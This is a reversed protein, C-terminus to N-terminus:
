FKFVSFGSGVFSTINCGHDRSIELAFFFYRTSLFYAKVPIKGREEEEHTGFEYNQYVDSSGSDSDNNYISIPSPFASFHRFDFLRSALGIAPHKSVCPSSVYVSSEIRKSSNVIQNRLLLAAVARWRGM